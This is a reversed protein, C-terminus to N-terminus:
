ASELARKKWQEVNVGKVILWLCFSLEGILALALIPLITPAYAPALILTFSNTLYSLGAMMMLIGITKPFYGSRFILYGQVLCVFGFFIFGIGAGYDYLKLSLYAQTYLQYPEFAKLYDASGLSFLAAFLNLKNATLVATQILNFLVALLALNKSVPRLLVYIVLMLPVDSVHMILDAAIGIRWLSQSAMINNATATVDGSVVLKERVFFTTCFGIIIILLYLAGGIRAYVQPSIDVTRSTM